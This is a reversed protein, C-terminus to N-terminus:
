VWPNEGVLCCAPLPAQALDDDAVDAAQVETVRARAAQVGGKEAMRVRVDIPCQEGARRPDALAVM